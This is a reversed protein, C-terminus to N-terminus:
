SKKLDSTLIWLSNPESNHCELGMEIVNNDFQLLVRDTYPFNLEDAFNILTGQQGILLWYNENPSCKSKPKVTNNFAKLKYKQGKIM